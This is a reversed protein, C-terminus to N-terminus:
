PTVEIWVPQSAIQLENATKAKAQLRVPGLGLKAPDITLSAPSTAKSDASAVVEWRHHVTMETSGQPAKISVNIPGAKISFQKPQVQQSESSVVSASTGPSDISLQISDATGIWVPITAMTRQNLPDDAIQLVQVEHYGPAINTLAVNVQPQVVGGQPSSGDIQLALRSTALASKRQSAPLPMALWDGYKVGALSPQISLTQNIQLQRLSTDIPHNPASSFPQCLPDGVILLQYPGNVSQYFAEALSAGQAYHVYLFPSPFKFALAFPETVTGCSGAAGARILESFTTQSNPTTMVGGFSTLNDAIAGPVMQSAAAMWSFRSVGFQFGLISRMRMPLPTKITEAGFGLRKLEEIAEDRFPKRTESRVDTTNSYYFTGEPHTFDAQSARTLSDIAQKVTTGGGRTVALMVSLLYRSGPQEPRDPGIMRVGNPAWLARNNFGITPQWIGSDNDLLIELLQFDDRDRLKKFRDDSKLYGGSSWGAQIASELLKVSAEPELALCAEAAAMYRIPYQNPMKKILELLKKYAENHRRQASLKQISVWEQESEASGPYNFYRKMSQRSYFNIEPMAYSPNGAATLEYTYTLGTLSGIPTLFTLKEKLKALDKDINIATPFDSSYAICQVHNALGRQNIQTLIPKLIKERFEDVTTTESSPIDGLVIVNVDPISRLKVYHNAITRSDLSDGNVVVVVESAALGAIAPSLPICEWALVFAMLAIFNRAMPQFYSLPGDFRDFATPKQASLPLQGLQREPPAQYDLIVIPKPHNGRTTHRKRRHIMAFSSCETM